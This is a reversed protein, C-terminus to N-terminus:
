ISRNIKIEKAILKIASEHKAMKYLKVHRYQDRRLISEAIINTEESSRLGLYIEKIAFPKINYYYNGDEDIENLDFYIRVEKEYCWSSEKRHMLDRLRMGHEKHVNLRVPWFVMGENSYDVKVLADNKGNVIEMEDIGVVIGEHNSCYHAWMQIIDPNESLCTIGIKNIWENRIDRKAEKFLAIQLRSIKNLIENISDGDCEIGYMKLKELWVILIDNKSLNSYFEEEITKMANEIDIGFDLEFPDNFNNMKSTKLRSKLLIDFGKTTCYKYLM